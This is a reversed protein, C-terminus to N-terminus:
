GEDLGRRDDTVSRATCVVQIPYLDAIVKTEVESVIEQPEFTNDHEYIFCERKGCASRAPLGPTVM